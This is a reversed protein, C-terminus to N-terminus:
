RKSTSKKLRPLPLSPRQDFKPLKFPKKKLSELILSLAKDMQPDRGLRYDQPAFDVDYDPEAGYNELGWGTDTFWFSYEPQTTVTGDVLIHSPSIGIVGGWTRKGVLPGLGYLKFCHSFIDGDSGAFQNTIAVMPGAVSESPYPMPMGWRCIDYGVRKRRLKELLLQSVHGGGNYRVDVILGDRHIESLYSRHFEAYGYPGMDPIHVYGVRGGTKDHVYKRNASVWARYRVAGEHALTKVAINRSHGKKDRLTLMVDKRMFNALLEDVTCNKSVPRGGVATIIDGEKINAGPKALPSDAEEDWSDGRLIKTIKYGDTDEDYALEAGLYGRYNSPPWRHDGGFEYAHSTGLEGQMEWILDSLETRSNIRPLLVSYRKHVLAWDVDSMDETWFHDRQLRWCEDFMQKWEAHPEILVHARNLDLWGTKRSCDDGPPNSPSDTIACLADVARLRRNSSYVMTRNDRGLSFWSVNNFLAGSRQEKIDYVLLTGADEQENYWSHGGRKIGRVPAKTFVVRGPLGAIQQYRGEEVPFALVRDHIGEFEIVVPKPAAEAPAAGNKQEPATPQNAASKKDKAVTKAATKAAKGTAAATKKKKSDNASGTAPAGETAAAAPQASGATGPVTGQLSRTVPIFPSPVGARLAVLHPRVAFPFGLDFNIADYVPNFDRSSLFYLYNGDPDFSPCFDARIPTTVDHTRNEKTDYIRLNCADPYPAYSYAIWRGDPSWAMREIRAAPGRDLLHTKKKDVDVLLLEHKHNSVALINSTPSVALSVVRGIDHDTIYRPKETQDAKHLEIREFGCVDNVVVFHTGSGLWSLLRYRCKSGVGHQMVAEEWFPFTFPQGRSILGLSHGQPHVSIHEISGATSRFKRQSQRPASPVQIDIRNSQDRAVDLVLVDAGCTYVIRKGDTSPYRVYYEEHNTHRRLGGGDATCSYINGIGEHDSLFYIRNGVWMPSALNGKLDILRQFNGRGKQDVWLEGAMGGRYRKWRAPDSNNRAIVIAGNNHASIAVAHGINLPRPMGGSADIEFLETTGGYHTKANSAFVIRLGDSSWGMVMCGGGGMYTIRKAPGGDADMVFVEADGEERAVFAIQSGDPSLRPFSCNGHGATLRRAVGGSAPASWIDDECVFVLTDDNINAQRYYGTARTMTREKCVLLSNYGNAAGGSTKTIALRASKM